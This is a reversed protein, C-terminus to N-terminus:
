RWLKSTCPGAEKQHLLFVGAAVKVGSLRPFMAQIETYTEGNHHLTPIFQKILSLKINLTIYGLSVFTIHAFVHCFSIRSIVSLTNISHCFSHM